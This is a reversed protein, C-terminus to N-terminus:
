VRSGPSGMDAQPLNGMLGRQSSWPPLGAIFPCPSDSLTMTGSFGGFLSSIVPSTETLSDASSTSSLVRALSFERCCFVRRVCLRSHTCLASVRTRRAAELPEVNVDSAPAWHPLEARQSRHPPRGTLATGVAGAQVHPRSPQVVFCGPTSTACADRWGPPSNPFFSKVRFECWRSHRSSTQSSIM